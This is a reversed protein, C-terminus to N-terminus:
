NLLFTIFISNGTTKYFGKTKLRINENDTYTLRCFGQPKKVKERNRRIHVAAGICTRKQAPFGCAEPKSSIGLPLAQM